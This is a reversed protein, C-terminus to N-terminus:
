KFNYEQPDIRFSTSYQSYYNFTLIPCPIYSEDERIRFRDDEKLFTEYISIQLQNPRFMEIEYEIIFHLYSEIKKM